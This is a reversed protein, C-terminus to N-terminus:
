QSSPSVIFRLKAAQSFSLGREESVSSSAGDYAGGKYMQQSLTVSSYGDYSGGKFTAAFLNSTAGIHCIVVLCAVIRLLYRKSAPYDAVRNEEKVGRRAFGMAALAVQM